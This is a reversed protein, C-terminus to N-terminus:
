TEVNPMRMMEKVWTINSIDKEMTLLIGLEKELLHDQFIMLEEFYPSKYIRIERCMDSGESDSQRKQVAKRNNNCKQTVLIKSFNFKPMVSADGLNAEIFDCKSVAAPKETKKEVELNKGKKSRSSQSKISKLIHKIKSSMKYLEGSTKTIDELVHKNYNFIKPANQMFTAMGNIAQSMHDLFVVFDANTGVEFVTHNTFPSAEPRDEGMQIKVYMDKRWAKERSTVLVHNCSYPGIYKNLHNLVLNNVRADEFIFLSHRYKFFGFFQRLISGNITSVENRNEVKTLVLEFSKIIDTVTKSNIWLVDTNYDSRIKLAYRRAVEATLMESHGILVVMKKQIHLDKIM